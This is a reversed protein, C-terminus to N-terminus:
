AGQRMRDLQEVGTSTAIGRLTTEGFADQEEAPLGYLRAMVVWLTLGRAIAATDTEATCSGEAICDCLLNAFRREWGRIWDVYSPRHAADDYLERLMQTGMINLRRVFEHLLRVTRRFAPEEGGVLRLVEANWGAFLAELSRDILSTKDGFLGYLTRKSIALRNAVEDVRVARLGNRIMLQQTDEIILRSTDANSNRKM